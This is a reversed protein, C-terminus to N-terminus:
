KKGEKNFFLRPNTYVGFEGANYRDALDLYERQFINYDFNEEFTESGQEVQTTHNDILKKGLDQMYVIKGGDPLTTHKKTIRGGNDKRLEIQTEAQVSLNKFMDSIVELSNKKKFESVPIKFLYVGRSKMAGPNETDDPHAFDYETTDKVTENISFIVFKENKWFVRHHKLERLFMMMRATLIELKGAYNSDLKLTDYKIDRLSIETAIGEESPSYAFYKMIGNEVDSQFNSPEFYKLFLAEGLQAWEAKMYKKELADVQIKCSVVSSKGDYDVSTYYLDHSGSSLHEPYEISAFVPIAKGADSKASVKKLINYRDGEIMSLDVVGSILPVGVQAKDEDVILAVKRSDTKGSFTIATFVLDHTGPALRSTDPFNVSVDADEGAIKVGAVITEVRLSDGRSLHVPTIKSLKHVQANVGLACFMVSIMVSFKWKM